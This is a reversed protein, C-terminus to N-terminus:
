PAAILAEVQMFTQNPDRGSRGGFDSSEVDFTFSTAQTPAMAPTRLRGSIVLATRPDDRDGRNTLRTVLSGTDEIVSEPEVELVEIASFFALTARAVGGQDTVTLTFRYVTDPRLNLYQTGDPATWSSRPPNTMTENGVGEGSIRLEVRPPTNDVDPIVTACGVLVFVAALVSTRFLLFVRM